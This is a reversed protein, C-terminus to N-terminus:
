GVMLWNQMQMNELRLKLLCSKEVFGKCYDVEIPSFVVTTGKIARIFVQETTSTEIPFNTTKKRLKVKM